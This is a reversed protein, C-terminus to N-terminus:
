RAAANSRREESKPVSLRPRPTARRPATGGLREEGLEYSIMGEAIERLAVDELALSELSEVLPRAGHRLQKVRLSVINVLIYHEPVVKLAAKIYEDRMIIRSQRLSDSTALVAVTGDGARRARKMTGGLMRWPSGSAYPTKGAMADPEAQARRSRTDVLLDIGWFRPSAKAGPRQYSELGRRKPWDIRRLAALRGKKTM